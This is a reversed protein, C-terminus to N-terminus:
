NPVFTGNNKFDGFFFTKKIFTYKEKLSGSSM